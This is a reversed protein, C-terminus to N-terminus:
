SAFALEAYTKGMERAVYDKAKPGFADRIEAELYKSPGDLGSHLMKYRADDSVEASNAFNLAASGYLPGPPLSPPTQAVLHQAAIEPDYVKRDRMLAKMQEFGEDTLAYKKRAAEMSSVFDADERDKVTKAADDDRKKLADLLEQNQKKIADIDARLPATAADIDDDALRIEPFKERLHKTIGARLSPDAYVKNLFDRHRQLEAASPDSADTM